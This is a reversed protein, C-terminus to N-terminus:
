CFVFFAGQATRCEAYGYVLLGGTLEIRRVSQPALLQHLISLDPYPAVIHAGNRTSRASYALTEAPRAFFGPVNM